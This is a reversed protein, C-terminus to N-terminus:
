TDPSAGGLVCTPEQLCHSAAFAPCPCPPPVPHLHLVALLILISEHLIEALSSRSCVQRHGLIRTVYRRCSSGQGQHAPSVSVSVTTVPVRVRGPGSGVSRRTRHPGGPPEWKGSPATAPEPRAQSLSASPAALLLKLSFEM